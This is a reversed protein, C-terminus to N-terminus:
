YLEKRRRWKPIFGRFTYTFYCKSKVLIIGLLLIISCGLKESVRAPDTIRWGRWVLISGRIIGQKPWPGRNPSNPHFYKDFEGLSLWTAWGKGKDCLRAARLTIRGTQFGCWLSSYLTHQNWLLYISTQLSVKWYYAM